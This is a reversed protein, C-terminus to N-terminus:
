RRSFTRKHVPVGVVTRRSSRSTMQATNSHVGFSKNTHSGSWTADRRGGVAAVALAAPGRVAGRNPRFRESGGAHAFLTRSRTRGTPDFASRVRCGRIAVVAHGTAWEGLRRASTTARSALVEGGTQTNVTVVERCFRHTRTQVAQGPTGGPVVLPSAPSTLTADLVPRGAQAGAASTGDRDVMAADTPQAPEVGRAISVGIALEVRDGGVAVALLQEKRVHQLGGTGPMMLRLCFRQRCQAEPRDCVTLLDQKGHDGVEAAPPVAERTRRDRLEHDGEFGEFAVVGALSSPAALIRRPHPGTDAHQETELVRGASRDAEALCVDQSLDVQRDARDALHEVSGPHELVVARGRDVGPELALRGMQGLGHDGLDVLPEVDHQVAAGDRRAPARAALDGGLDVKTPRERHEVVPRVLTM